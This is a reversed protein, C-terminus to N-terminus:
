AASVQEITVEVRGGKVVSGRQVSLRDIQEDDFGFSESLSDQLAKLVNDLDRRRKDPPSATVSLALRGALCPVEGLQSFVSLGVDRRYRRGETSVHVHGHGMRWYHNVSPPWPLTVTIM